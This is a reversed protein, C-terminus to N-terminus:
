FSAQSFLFLLLIFYFASFRDRTVPTVPQAMKWTSGSSCKGVCKLVLFGVIQLCLFWCFFLIIEIFSFFLFINLWGSTHFLHNLAVLRWKQNKSWKKNTENILRFICIYVFLFVCQINFPNQNIHCSMALSHLTYSMENKRLCLLLLGFFLCKYYYFNKKGRSWVPFRSFFRCFGVYKMAYFIFTFNTWM